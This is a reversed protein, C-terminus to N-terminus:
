LHPCHFLNLPSHGLPNLHQLSFRFTGLEFVVQNSLISIYSYKLHRMTSNYM